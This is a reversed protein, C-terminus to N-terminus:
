RCSQGFNVIVIKFKFSRSVEGPPKLVALSLPDASVVFACKASKLQEGLASMDAITGYTNPYQFLAGSFSKLDLSDISTSSAVVVQPVFWYFRILADVCATVDVYAALEHSRLVEVGLPIARTRILDITQPHM